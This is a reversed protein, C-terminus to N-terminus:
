RLVTIPGTFPKISEEHLDIIYYYTGIPLEKGKYTGDWDQQYGEAHFLLEGWRNYIEVVNKPFQEIFDIVWTDNQGDGNPTIGDPFKISPLVTVTITDIASCGNSSTVTVYYTTTVTPSAIPNSITSDSLGTGPTWSYTTGGTAALQISTNEFISVDPGANAVPLADVTICVTDMDSCAGNVQYVYCTTGVSGPTVSVTDTTGLSVMGPLEFWEVGTFNGTPTGLLNITNGLCITTDNGANALVTDTAGINISDTISCGNQDTILVTNLGFCLGTETPTQGPLTNGNWQYTYPGTGGAPTVTATGDCVATCSADTQVSSSSLSAPENISVSDVVMCTNTDTITVTYTGPCLNIISDQPLNGPTWDYTYPATGGLTNSVAWGDCLGNCTVNSANINAQLVAPEIVSDIAVGICGLSDTVNVSYQGACLNTITPTTQGGFSWLYIYPATGGTPTATIQGDCMGNCSVNTVITNPSPGNTNSLPYNFNVTCGTSDTIAVIYAGACLNNITATVPQPSPPASPTTWLYSYPGTGGTPALTISGDCMNCNPLVLSENALIATPETIVVTDMATCGNNDTVTVIYTGACLGTAIQTTQNLPDNWSYTYNPTGGLVSAIATGDCSGNCSIPTNVSATVTLINPGTVNASISDACNTSDTVTVIYTGVCLNVATQTIQSTPTWLYSYPSTGGSASVTASGDCDGFCTEPVISTISLNLGSTNVSITDISVCNSNDTVTVTYFGTCLNTATQNTDAPPGTPSWSYTYPANGGSPSVTATGNCTNPCTEDTAGMALTPGNLSNILITYNYICGTGLDTIQLNVSGACLGVVTSSPQGFTSFPLSPNTGLPDTWVFDFPGVGGVPTSTASGDCVGCSPSNVITSDNLTAPATLTITDYATCNNADVVIVDYVGACLNNISDFTGGTNWIYSYPGVGGSPVTTISGDCINSCTALTPTSVTTLLGPAIVQVSDVATCGKTDTVTVTYTGACLSAALSNNQVPATNWSYTYGPNGGSANAIATGDCSGNCTAPTSSITISIATPDTITVSDLQSCGNADTILATHTGACLGTITNSSGIAIPIVAGGDWSVTYSGVGGTPTTTATGDCVGICTPPTSTLNAMIQQPEPVTISDVSICGFGDQVVINYLGGCLGNASDTTQLAPDDWQFIYTPNGAIITVWALGNCSGFCTVSDAQTSLTPGNPNNILINFSQMCGINDTVDVNYAGPCLNNINPTSQGGPSWSYNYPAGSGGAAIVSASGNCQGCTADVTNITATIAVGQGITINANGTCGNLDTVTVTYNGACLATITPTSANNSWLYTYPGTGGNPTATAQGDCSGNCNAAVGSTNVTLVNPANITVNQILSCGIADTITCTYNGACLGGVANITQGAANGGTWSYSYPPVGGSPVVLASGNCVGNCTADITTVTATISTNDTITVPQVTICNNGDTVQVTYSGACLGAVSPTVQGGTTWLYTYNPTGSTVTATAQGDCVGNCSANTSNVSVTPGGVNSIAIPFTQMCLNADTIEVMYTGACLGGVSPNSSGLSTWNYTYGPTGGSPALSATGDCVGCTALTTIDNPVILSPEAITVTDNVSCGFFDTVTVMYTGACLGSATPTTQALPDNWQYTYPATGGAPSVTASGDCIGNCSADTTVSGASLSGPSTINFNVVNTCGFFDTITVSVAGVCLNSASSATSGDHSWVYTYPPNGGVPTVSATGDCNGSCTANTFTSNATIVSAEGVVLSTSLICNASDTLTLNYTGACLNTITSDPLYPGGAPVSTWNYSYPSTGGIPIVNLSGDCAGNCTADNVTATVGSPGNPNSVGITFIAVCGQSDTITDTYFGASLNPNNPTTVGNSWSHTYGATGGSPFVVISGDSVGCNAGTVIENDDIPQPETINVSGIFICGSSDTVTVTYIGPCLGTIVANTDPGPLCGGVWSYTYPLTGGLPTATATGDNAGNCTVNTSDLTVSLAPPTTVIYSGNATCGKADTVVVNFTDPCLNSIGPNTLVNPAANASWQYSYAGTGGTPSALATGTCPNTCSEPTGTVNANLVAPETITIIQSTICGNSDTVTVSNTLNAAPPPCLNFISDTNQGNPAWSYTYPPTGGNVTVAEIGDCAGNCSINIGIPTSSLVPPQTITDFVDIFCGNSDTVTIHYPGAPLNNASPGSSVNPVWVYTYTGGTGGTPALTISGTSNGNCLVNVVVDNAVIPTPEPIVLTDSQVCNNSDTVTVVAFPPCVNNTDMGGPITWVVSYPPTGGTPSSSVMGDCAGTCSVFQDINGNPVLVPPAVPMLISDTSACGNSDTATVYVWGPCLNGVSQLTDNPGTSNGSWQYTYPPVGGSPNASATGDCNGNCSIGVATPTIQITILPNIVTTDQATCGNTDTVTVTYQGACLNTAAQTTQSPPGTVTWVYTYGPTGGNPTAFAAGDCVTGCSANTASASVTLAPPNTITISDVGTCGNTDTVTIIYTGACLNNISQTNYPSASCAPGTWLYTYGPAGGSPLSVASGNTLGNCTIDTFSPNPFIQTPSFITITDRVTCLSDDTVTVYYTGACLANIPNGAIPFAGGSPISDWSYIFPATGGVPTTNATGDCVGFCSVDTTATTTTLAPPETINFNVLLTCNNADTILATHAGACLGPITNSGAIPIAIPAAGDWSVTYPGVGGTPSVTATGNCVSNCTLNSTSLNDVIPLQPNVTVSGNGPCGASDTVNVTYTGACLSWISDTGQGPGVQGVPVSTWVYTFDVAPNGTGGTISVSATGDCSVSCSEDTSSMVLNLPLPETITVSDIATCGFSDVVTCIYTGPCLSSISQTFWPSGPSPGTWTYSFDVAPNGTGGSPSVTATGDCFGPCTINTQSPNVIIPLPETISFTDQVTCNNADTVTVICQPTPCLNTISDFTSPGCSWSYTYGGAGGVPFTTAMGNCANNCTVNTPTTTTTLVSPETITFTYITDCGNADSITDTYNGPCLPGLVSVPTNDVQGNSWSHTYPAVGGSLVTVTIQGDCAGGCTVNQTITDIQMQPPQTPTITTDNFCGNIDQVTVTYAVGDCLNPFTQATDVAPNGTAPTWSYSFGGNGGIPNSTASGSCYGFCSPDTVTVNAYLSDPQPINYFFTTDCGFGDQVQLSVPGFCLTSNTTSNGVTTVFAAPTWIFNMNAYSAGIVTVSVSGDCLGNCSTTNIIQSIPLIPPHGLVNAAQGSLFGCNDQVVATYSGPCLGTVTDLGASGAVGVWNVVTYPPCDTIVTDIYLMGDCTNGCSVTDDFVVISTIVKNNASKNTQSQNVNYNDGGMNVANVDSNLVYIKTQSFNYNFKSTSTTWQNYVLIDSNDSILKRKIGSNSMFSSCVIDNSNLNLEGQTITLSNDPLLLPSSLIYTGKGNFNFDTKWNWNGFNLTKNNNSTSIFNITGTLENEFIASVDVVGYIDINVAHNSKLKFGAIRSPITLNNFSVNNTITVTQNPLTFSNADFFVNDSTGPIATGGNGGSVNSWHSPDNWNGSNGIWYLNGAFVDSFIFLSLLATLLLSKGFNMLM